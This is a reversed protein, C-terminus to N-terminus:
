KLRGRPLKMARAVVKNRRGCDVFGGGRWWDRVWDMLSRSGMPLVRRRPVATMNKWAICYLAACDLAQCVERTMPRRAPAKVVKM